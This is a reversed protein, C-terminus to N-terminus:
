AVRAALITVTTPPSDSGGGDVETIRLIGTAPIVQNLHEILAPRTPVNDAKNVDMANTIPLATNLVQLTDSATGAARNIVLIDLIKVRHTMVVDVNGTAGGPTDISFLIPSGGIVSANGINATVTGDLSNPAIKVQTVASDQIKSTSVSNDSLDGASIFSAVTVPAVGTANTFERIDTADSAVITITDNKTVQDAWDDFYGSATITALNDTSPGYAWGTTVLGNTKNTTTTSMLNSEFAM